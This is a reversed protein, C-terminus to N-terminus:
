CGENSVKIRPRVVPRVSRQVPEPAVDSEGTLYRVLAVRSRYENWAEETDDAPPDPLTLVERECAAHGGALVYTQEHIAKVRRFPEVVDEDSDGYLVLVHGSPIARIADLDLSDAPMSEATRVANALFREGPRIDLLHYHRDGSVVWAALTRAPIRDKVGPPDALRTEELPPPALLLILAALVALAFLLPKV